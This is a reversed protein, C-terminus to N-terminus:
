GGNLIRRNSGGNVGLFIIGEWHFCAFDDFQIGLQTLIFMFKSTWLVSASVTSPPLPGCCKEGCISVLPIEESTCVVIM